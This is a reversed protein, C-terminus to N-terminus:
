GVFKGPLNALSVLLAYQTATFNQNTLGSMFAVLVTGAFGQALNDATIAAFFAWIESPHQAMLLFALNSLAVGIAAVALLRRIDFAAVCVGGLFAGGIGLWVGYLKSVTAIDAKTYGSDLYFPGSMVLMKNVSITEWIRFTFFNMPLFLVEILPWILFLWGSLKAAKTAQSESPSSIYRTALNWQGGNYSLFNIFLFALAFGVGYPDNFPQSNESPLKEWMTFISEQGDLNYLVAFFM